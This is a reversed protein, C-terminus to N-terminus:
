FYQFQLSPILHHLQLWTPLCAVKVKQVYATEGKNNHVIM